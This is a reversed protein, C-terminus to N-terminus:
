TQKEEIFEGKARLAFSGEFAFRSVVRCLVGWFNACQRM